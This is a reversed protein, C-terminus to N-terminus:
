PGQWFLRYRPRQLILTNPHGPVPQWGQFNLTERADVLNAAWYYEYFGTHLAVYALGTTIGLLWGILLLTAVLLKGKM